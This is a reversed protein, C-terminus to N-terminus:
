GIFINLSRPIICFEIPTTSVIEGDANIIDKTYSNIRINAAKYLKVYPLQLHNGKAFKLLLFPIKYKPVPTIVILDLCGDDLAGSPNVKMGGGYYKGNAIAALLIKTDLKKDDIYISVSKCRYTVFKKLVSLYYAAKGKIWHKNSQVDEAIEADLGLSAVNLFYKDGVRGVDITTIRNKKIKELAAYLDEPINATRAFDNGTGMPLVGLPVTSGFLGNAVELLTGDGGVAIIGSYGSTIEKKAIETGHGPYKTCIIKYDIGNSRCYEKIQPVAEMTMGNGATPNVIFLLNM